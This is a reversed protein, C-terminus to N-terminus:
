FGRYGYKFLLARREEDTYDDGLKKEVLRAANDSLNVTGDDVLERLALRVGDASYGKQVLKPLLRAPGALSQNAEREVLRLLQRHEDIYGHMVMDRAAEYAATQSYGARRLKAVLARESIDSYSLLSLAKKTARGGEDAAKIEELEEETLTTGRTPEGLEHYLVSPIKYRADGEDSIVGLLYTAGSKSSKIYQIKAM